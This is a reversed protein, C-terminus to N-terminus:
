NSGAESDLVILDLVDQKTQIRTGVLDSRLHNEQSTDGIQDM